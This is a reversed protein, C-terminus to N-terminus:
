KFGNNTNKAASKISPLEIENKQNIVSFEMIMQEEHSMSRLVGANNNM